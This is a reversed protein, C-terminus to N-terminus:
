LRIGFGVEWSYLNYFNYAEDISDFSTGIVPNAVNGDRKDIYARM